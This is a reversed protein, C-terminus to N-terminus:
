QVAFSAGNDNTGSGGNTLLYFWYNLVGNNRHTYAYLDEETVTDYYWNTGEYTSPHGKVWPSSMSRISGPVADEGISWNAFQNPKAYNEVCAGWIDSFGENLAGSETDTYSLKATSGTVGHGIEHAIVDMATLPEFSTGKGCTIRTGDWFANDSHTYRNEGFAYVTLDANVYTLIAANQNNYSNRNHKTKFYDYTMMAAWHADLAANDKNTNNWEAATWNNDADTYEINAYSSQGRVNYTKIGQGRSIDNL